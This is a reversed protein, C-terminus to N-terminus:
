ESNRKSQCYVLAIILIFFTTTARGINERFIIYVTYVKQMVTFGRKVTIETYREEVTYQDIAM